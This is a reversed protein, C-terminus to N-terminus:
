LRGAQMRHFAIMERLFRSLTTAHKQVIYSLWGLDDEHLRMTIRRHLTM